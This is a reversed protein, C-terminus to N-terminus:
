TDGQIDPYGGTLRPILADKWDETSPDFETKYQGLQVRQDSGTEHVRGSSGAQLSIHTTNVWVVMHLLDSQTSIIAVDQSDDLQVTHLRKDTKLDTCDEMQIKLYRGRVTYEGGHCQQFYLTRNPGSENREVVRHADREGVRMLASDNVIEQLHPTPVAARAPVFLPVPM